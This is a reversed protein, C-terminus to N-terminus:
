GFHWVSGAFRGCWGALIGRRSGPRRLSPGDVNVRSPAIEQQEHTEEHGAQDVAGGKVHVSTEDTHLRTLRELDGSGCVAGLM